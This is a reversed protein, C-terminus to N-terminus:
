VRFGEDELYLLKTRFLVLECYSFTVYSESM